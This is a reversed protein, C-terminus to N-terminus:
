TRRKAGQDQGFVNKRRALPQQDGACGGSVVGYDDALDRSIGASADHDDGLIVYPKGPEGLSQREEGGLDFPQLKGGPIAQRVIPDRGIRLDGAPADVRQAAQRGPHGVLGANQQSGDRRRQLPHRRGGLDRAPRDDNTSAISQIRCVQDFLQRVEAKGPDLGDGVPAIVGHAAADDVQERRAIVLRQPRSKKPSSTSPM